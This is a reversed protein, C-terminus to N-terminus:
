LIALSDRGFSTIPIKIDAPEGNTDVLAHIEYDERDVEEISYGMRHGGDAMGAQCYNLFGLYMDFEEDKISEQLVQALARDKNQTSTAVIGRSHVPAAFHFCGVLCPNISTLNNPPINVKAPATDVDM